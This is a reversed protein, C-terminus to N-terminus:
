QSMDLFAKLAKFFLEPQEEFIMHGCQELVVMKSNKLCEKQLYFTSEGQDDQRGYIILAPINFQKLKATYDLKNELVDKDILPIPQLNFKMFINKFGPDVISRNYYHHRHIICIFQYFAKVIDSAPNTQKLQELEAPTKHGFITQLLQLSDKEQQSTRAFQNDTLVNWLKYSPPASAVLILKSVRQPYTAAFAQALLGGWSYGMLIAKSDKRHQMLALVDNVYASVTITKENCEINGSKGTGRQHLLVVTFHKKLSDMIQYGPSEPPYGPGGNLFYLPTGKGSVEYFLEVNVNRFSHPQQSYLSIATTLLYFTFLIQKM